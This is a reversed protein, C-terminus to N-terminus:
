PAMEAVPPIQFRQPVHCALFFPLEAPLKRAEQLLVAVEVGRDLRQLDRGAGVNQLNLPQLLALQDQPIPNGEDLILERRVDDRSNKKPMIKESFRHGSKPIM